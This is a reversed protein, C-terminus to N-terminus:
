DQDPLEQLLAPNKRYIYANADDDLQVLEALSSVCPDHDVLMPPLCSSQRQIRCSRRVPTLFRLDKINSKKKSASVNVEDEITKRVSQLYPTTKVSYKIVSAEKLEPTKVDDGGDVEEEVEQKEEDTKVEEAKIRENKEKVCEEPKDEADDGGCEQVELLWQYEGDSCRSPTVLSELADCLNLVIDDVPEQSDTSLDVDSSELLDLTTNIVEPTQSHASAEEQVESCAAVDLQLRPDAEAALLPEVHPQGEVKVKVPLKNSFAATTMAPRKLTKGKSALWEALKARKEEATEVTFRYQRRTSSAAPKNVKTNEERRSKNPAATTTKPRASAATASVTRTPPGAPCSNGAGAKTVQAPKDSVSKSRMPAPRHVSHGAVSLSRHNKAMVGVRQSESRPALPKPEATGVASSSKWISGIKSQVVRGKYMGPASKSSLAAAPPKSAQEQGNSSRQVDAAAANGGIQVKKQAERLVQKSDVVKSRVTLHKKTATEKQDGRPQLSVVSAKGGKTLSKTGHTPLTNEKNGRKNTHNRGSIAVSEM